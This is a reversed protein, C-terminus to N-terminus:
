QKLSNIIFTSFIPSMFVTIHIDTIMATATSSQGSSLKEWFLGMVECLVTYPRVNLKSGCVKTNFRRWVM